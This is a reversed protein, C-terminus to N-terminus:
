GSSCRLLRFHLIEDNESTEEKLIETLYIGKRFSKSEKTSETLEQFEHETKINYFYDGHFLSRFYVGANNVIIPVEGLEVVHISDDNVLNNYNSSFERIIYTQIKDLKIDSLDGCIYLRKGITSPAEPLSNVVKGCFNEILYSIDLHLEKKEFLVILINKDKSIQNETGEM